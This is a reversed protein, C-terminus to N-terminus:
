DLDHLAENGCQLRSFGLSLNRPLGVSCWFTSSSLGLSLSRPLGGGCLQFFFSWVIIIPIEASCSLFSLVFNINWLRWPLSKRSPLTHNIAAPLPWVINSTQCESHQNHLSYFSLCPTSFTLEVLARYYIITSTAAVIRWTSVFVLSM